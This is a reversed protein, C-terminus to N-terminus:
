KEAAAGVRRPRGRSESSSVHTVIFPINKPSTGTSTVRALKFSGEKEATITHLVFRGKTDYMLRFLDNSKEIQVVDAHTPLSPPALLLFPCFLAIFFPTPQRYGRASLVCDFTRAPYQGVRSGAGRGREWGGARWAGMFGAPFNLDTRVKGDVKVLKQMVIAISEKRTLAYHLRNRLILSLPLSERQKHPGTSPKPAWIGGMKNLMWHKPANLRKMHKKM